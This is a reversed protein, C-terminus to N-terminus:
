KLLPLVNSPFFPYLGLALVAVACAIVGLWPLPVSVALPRSQPARVTRVYMERVIKLYAYISIATGIVLLVALWAYGANVISALLLIKGTFGVTPPLGALSLLFFSMMAALVPKRHGLGAFASLRSGEDDHYSLLALVAFAGLNMFMYATLYFLAYRLGMTTVGAFAAVIYGVQAIGSYALLRKLDTQALAAVNGAIMSLAAAIWLPLLLAETGAAPLAVYIVRALVALVAAKVAVSMFATVPLPAGEYVDPAWVHFPVLSLKFALGVFFMGIGLAFFAHSAPSTSLAALAVSGTAGFLLAMGYLLFGSTTSSLILYKLASERAAARSAFACLCYLALSALEIGLFITMLDGAGAALMAGCASWLLLAIGGGGQDDRGLGYATVLTFLVALVIIEEFVIAFGDSLFAGGFAFASSGASQFAHYQLGALGGAVISGLAAVALTTGRRFRKPVCLDLVLVVLATLAIAVIPSVANWDHSGFVIM